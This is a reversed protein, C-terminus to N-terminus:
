PRDGTRLLRQRIAEIEDRLPLLRALRSRDPLEPQAESDPYTLGFAASLDLLMVPMLERADLM